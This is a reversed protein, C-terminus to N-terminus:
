SGRSANELGPEKENSSVGNMAASSIAAPAAARL